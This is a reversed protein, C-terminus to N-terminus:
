YAINEMVLAPVLQTFEDGAEEMDEDDEHYYWYVKVISASHVRQYKELAKLIEAIIESASTSFYEMAIDFRIKSPNTALFLELWALIPIAIAVTFSSIFRGSLKAYGDDINGVFDPEGDGGSLLKLNFRGLTNLLAQEVNSSPHNFHFRGFYPAGAPM